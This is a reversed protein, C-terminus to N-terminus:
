RGLFEIVDVLGCFSWLYKANPMQSTQRFTFLKSQADILTHKPCKTTVSGYMCIRILQLLGIVNNEQSTEEWDEHAQVQDVIALSCQGLVVAFAQSSATRQREVQDHYTEYAFEWHKVFVPNAIDEPEPPQVITDFGLDEADFANCFETGNKITRAWTNESKELLKQLYTSLSLPDLTTSM